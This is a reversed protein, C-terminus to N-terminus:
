SLYYRQCRRNLADTDGDKLHLQCLLKQAFQIINMNKYVEFMSTYLICQTTINLQVQLEAKSFFNHKVSSNGLQYKRRRGRRQSQGTGPETVPVTPMAAVAVPLVHCYESGFGFAVPRDGLELDVIIIIIIHKNRVRPVCYM